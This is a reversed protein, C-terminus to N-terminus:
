CVPTCYELEPSSTPGSLGHTNMVGQKGEEGTTSVPGPCLISGKWTVVETRGTLGGEPDSENGVRRGKMDM